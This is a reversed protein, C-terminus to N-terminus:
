PQVNLQDRAQLEHLAAHMQQKLSNLEAVQQKLESIQAAQQQVQNLLMPTLEDYRVGEIGTM